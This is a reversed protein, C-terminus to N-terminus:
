LRNTEVVSGSLAMFGTLKLVAIVAHCYEWQRSVALFNEPISGPQDAWGALIANTPLVGFLWVLLGLAFLGFALLGLMGGPGHRGFFWHLALTVLALLEIAAGIRGFEAYLGGGVTSDIWLQAPWGLRAGLEMLHAWSFALSLAGLILAAFQFAVLTM